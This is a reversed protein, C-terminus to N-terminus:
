ILGRKKRRDRMMMSQGSVSITYGWVELKFISRYSFYSYITWPIAFTQTCWRRCKNRHIRNGTRPPEIVSALEVVDAQLLYPTWDLILTVCSSALQTTLRRLGIEELDEIDGYAMDIRYHYNQKWRLIATLIRTQSSTTIVGEKMARHLERTRPTCFRIRLFDLNDENFLM